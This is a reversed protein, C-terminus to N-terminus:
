SVYSKFPADVLLISTMDIRKSEIAYKVYAEFGGDPVSFACINIGLDKLDRVMEM